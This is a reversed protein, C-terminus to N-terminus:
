DMCLNCSALGNFMTVIDMNALRDAIAVIQENALTPHGM